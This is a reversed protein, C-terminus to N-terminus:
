DNKPKGKTHWRTYPVSEDYKNLERYKDETEDWSMKSSDVEKDILFNVMKTYERQQLEGEEIKDVQPKFGEM